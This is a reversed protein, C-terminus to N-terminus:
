EEEINTSEGLSTVSYIVPSAGMKEVYGDTVLKRLAGGATKSTIGAAEFDKAKFLNNYSAKNDRMFTLCLKGNETFRKKEKSEATKLAEFYVKAEPSLDRHVEFLLNEIEDIFIDKKNM